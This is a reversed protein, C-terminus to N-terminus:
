SMVIQIYDTDILENLENLQEMVKKQPYMPTGEIEGFEGLIQSFVDGNYIREGLDEDTDKFCERGELEKVVRDLLANEPIQTMSVKHLVDKLNKPKPTFSAETNDSNHKGGEAGDMYSAM